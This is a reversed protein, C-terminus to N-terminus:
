ELRQIQPAARDPRRDDRVEAPVEPVREEEATLVARGVRDESSLEPEDVALAQEAHHHVSRDRHHQDAAPPRNMTLSTWVGFYRSPLPMWRTIVCGDLRGEGLPSRM